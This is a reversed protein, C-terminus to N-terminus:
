RGLEHVVTTGDELRVTIGFRMPGLRVISEYRPQAVMERTRGDQDRKWDELAGPPQSRKWVDLRTSKHRLGFSRGSFWWKVARGLATRRCWCDADCGCHRNHPNHIRQLLTREVTFDYRSRPWLPM